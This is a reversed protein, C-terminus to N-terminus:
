LTRSIVLIKCHTVYRDEFYIFGILFTFMDPFKLIKNSNLVSATGCSAYSDMSRLIKQIIPFFKWIQSVKIYGLYYFKLCAIVGLKISLNVYSVVLHLAIFVLFASMLIGECGSGSPLVYKSESVNSTDLILYM